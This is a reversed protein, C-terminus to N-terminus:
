KLLEMGPVKRAAKRDFTVTRECGLRANSGAILADAFDGGSKGIALAAEALEREGVTFERSNLLGEIVVLVESKAFGYVRSLVWHLEALVVIDLFLEGPGAEEIFRRARGFQKPEDNTFFRVLVNTDVGLM